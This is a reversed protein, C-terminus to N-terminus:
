KSVQDGTDSQLPLRTFWGHVGGPQNIVFKEIEGSKVLEGYARNYTKESSGVERIVAARLENSAMSGLKSEALVNLIAAATDDKTQAIRFRREEIFDADKKDTYGDFVARATKIGEVTANEIHMLVTQQKESYNSKEHSVYIKGDNKSYGMILVSRAIDWIDSSDALRGRGSVGQKKNTHM